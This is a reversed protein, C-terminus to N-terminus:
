VAFPMQLYYNNTIKNIINTMIYKLSSADKKDM